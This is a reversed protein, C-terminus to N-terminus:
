ILNPSCNKLIDGAHQMIHKAGLTKDGEGYIQGWKSEKDGDHHRKNDSM